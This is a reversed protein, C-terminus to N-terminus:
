ADRTMSNHCSPISKDIGSSINLLKKLESTKAGELVDAGARLYWAAERRSPFGRVAHAGQTSASIDEAHAGHKFTCGVGFSLLAWVKLKLVPKESTSTGLEEGLMKRADEAGIKRAAKEREEWATHASAQASEAATNDGTNEKNQISAKRKKRKQQAAPRKEKIINCEVDPDTPMLDSPTAHQEASNCSGFVTAGPDVTHCSSSTASSMFSHMVKHRSIMARSAQDRCYCLHAYVRGPDKLNKMSRWHECVHM